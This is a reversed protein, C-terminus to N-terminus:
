RAMHFDRALELAGVMGARDGLGAPVIVDGPEIGHAAFDIYGGLLSHLQERVLAILHAQRMVGGGLIIRRPACTVLLNLCAVALYHAQRAWAPHEIPLEHADKGWRARLAPGCALGELCRDAHFPCVGAFNEDGALKPIHMHGVEPHSFGYAIRGGVLLGAGIGTGVTIYAVDACGVGAGHRVEGILAANVDTDITAPASAARAIEGLMDVGQWGAKPTRALHGYAAEGRRLHLPGFAGIGVAAVAGHRRQASLFFDAVRALTQQPTTTPLQAHALVVGDAQALACVFKTGGAEVAGYLTTQAPARAFSSLNLAGGVIAM